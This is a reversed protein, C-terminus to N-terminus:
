AKTWAFCSLMCAHMCFDVHLQLTRVAKKRKRVVATGTSTTDFVQLFDDSRFELKEIM